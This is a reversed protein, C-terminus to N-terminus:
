NGLHVAATSINASASSQSSFSRPRDNAPAFFRNKLDHQGFASPETRRESIQRAQEFRERGEAIVAPVVTGWTLLRDSM